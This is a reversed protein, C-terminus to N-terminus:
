DRKGASFSQPDRGRSTVSISKGNVITARFDATLTAAVAGDVQVDVEATRQITGRLGVSFTANEAGTFIIATQGQKLTGSVNSRTAEDTTPCTNTANTPLTETTTTTM